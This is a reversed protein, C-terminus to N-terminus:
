PAVYIYYVCFLADYLFLLVPTSTSLAKFLDYYQAIHMAFIDCTVLCVYYLCPFVHLAHVPTVLLRLSLHISLQCLHHASSYFPEVFLGLGVM